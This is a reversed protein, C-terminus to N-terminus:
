EVEESYCVEPVGNLVTVFALAEEYRDFDQIHLSPNMEESIAEDRLNIYVGWFMPGSAEDADADADDVTHYSQTYADGYRTDSFELCPAIEWTRVGSHPNLCQIFQRDGTM